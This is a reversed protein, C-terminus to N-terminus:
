GAILGIGVALLVLIVSVLVGILWNKTSLHNANIAKTHKALAKEIHPLHNTRIEDIFEQTHMQENVVASHESCIEPCKDEKEM